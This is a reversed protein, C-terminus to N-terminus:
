TFLSKPPPVLIDIIIENPASYINNYLIESLSDFYINVVPTLIFDNITNSAFTIKTEEDKDHQCTCNKHADGHRAACGSITHGCGCTCLADGNVIIRKAIPVSQLFIQLTFLSVILMIILESRNTKIMSM